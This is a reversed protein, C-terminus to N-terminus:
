KKIKRVIPILALVFIGYFEFGPAAGASPINGSTVTGTYDPANFGFWKNYMINYLDSPNPNNEDSGLLEDLVENIVDLLATDGTRVAIGFDEPSYLADTLLETEGSEAEDLALVAFDGIVADVAGTKLAQIALPLTDYANRSAATLSENFYIDSTTGAQLGIKIGTENLDGIATISDPNGTPVLIGQFSQYYWRSFDVSEEREATITMASIIVDFQKSNLNPIIPEWASTKFELDVGIKRAIQHGIEVDFGTTKETTANYEEFPPYSTDSGVVLKGATKIDALTDAKVAIPANSLFVMGFISLGIIMLLINKKHNM